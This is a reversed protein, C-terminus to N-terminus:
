PPFTPKSFFLYQSLSPFLNKLSQGQHQPAQSQEVTSLVNMTDNVTWHCNVIILSDVFYSFLIWVPAWKEHWGRDKDGYCSIFVGCSGHSGSSFSSHWRLYSAATLHGSSQGKNKPFHKSKNSLLCPCFNSSISKNQLRTSYVIFSTSPYACQIKEGQLEFHTRDSFLVNM